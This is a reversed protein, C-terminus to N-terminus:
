CSRVFDNRDRRESHQRGYLKSMNKPVFLAKQAKEIVTRADATDTSVNMLDEYGVDFAAVKGFVGM